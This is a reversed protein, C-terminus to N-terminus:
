PKCGLVASSATLFGLPHHPLFHKGAGEESCHLTSQNLVSQTHQAPCQARRQLLGLSRGATPLPLLWSRPLPWFFREASRQRKHFLSGVALEIPVGFPKSRNGRM